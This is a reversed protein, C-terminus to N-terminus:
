RATKLAHDISKRLATSARRRVYNEAIKDAKWIAKQQRKRKGLFVVMRLGRKTRRYMGFNKDNPKQGAPHGIFFKANPNSPGVFSGGSREPKRNAIFKKTLNGYKNTKQGKGPMVLTKASGTGNFKSMRPKVTGGRMLTKLYPRNAQIYVENWLRRKSYKAYRVKFANKTFPTAGGDFRDVSKKIVKHTAFSLNQITIGVAFPVQDRKAGMQEQLKDIDFEVSIM